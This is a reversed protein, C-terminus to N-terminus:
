LFSAFNYISRNPPVTREGPIRSLPSPGPVRVRLFLFVAPWLSLFWATDLLLSSGLFFSVMSAVFALLGSRWGSPPTGWPPIKDCSTTEESEAELPFITNILSHIWVGCHFRRARCRGRWPIPVIKDLSHPPFRVPFGSVLFSRAPAIPSESV